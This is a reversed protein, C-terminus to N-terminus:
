NKNEIKKKFNFFLKPDSSPDTLFGWVFLSKLGKLFKSKDLLRVLVPIEQIALGDQLLISSISVVKRRTAESEATKSKASKHLKRQQASAVPSAPASQTCRLSQRVIGSFVSSSKTLKHVASILTPQSM